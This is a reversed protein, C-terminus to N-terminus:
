DPSNIIPLCIQKPDGWLVCVCVFGLLGVLVCVCVGGQEGYGWSRKGAEPGWSGPAAELSGPAARLQFGVPFAGHSPLAVVARGRSGQLM